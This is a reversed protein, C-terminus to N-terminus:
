TPRHRDLAEGLGEPTFAPLGAIRAGAIIALNITLMGYLHSFAAASLVVSAKTLGLEAGCAQANVLFGAYRMRIGKPSATTGSTYLLVFDDEVTVAESAAEAPTQRLDEFRVVGPPADPGVAIVAKLDPLSARLALAVEAPSFDKAQSRCVLAKAKAHRLLPEIEGARYPLHLPQLVAGVYGAALYCLIFELGNPLQAALVDGR